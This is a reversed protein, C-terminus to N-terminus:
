ICVDKTRISAVYDVFTHVRKRLDEPTGNNYITFDYKLDKPLSHESEHEGGPIGKRVLSSEVRIVISDKGSQIRALENAYRVDSIVYDYQDVFGCFTKNVWIDPDINRTFAGVEQWVQRPTRYGLRRLPIDKFEDSSEEETLGFLASCHKKLPNAFATHIYGVRELIKAVSDKGVRANGSIGIIM